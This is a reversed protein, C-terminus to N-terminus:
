EGLHKPLLPRLGLQERMCRKFSCQLIVFLVYVTFLFGGVFRSLIWGRLKLIGVTLVVTGFLMLVPVLLEGDQVPVKYPRWSGSESSGYVFCAIFWPFGLGIEIDFVNSGIANSVAMGASGARAAVVSALADPVSTGVALITVGMIIPDIGILCGSRESFEVM